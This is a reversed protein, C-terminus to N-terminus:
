VSFISEFKPVSEIQLVYHPDFVRLIIEYILAPSKKSSDILLISASRFDPWKEFNIVRHPKICLFACNKGRHHMLSIYCAHARTLSRARKQQASRRWFQSVPAFFLSLWNWSFVSFLFLDRPFDLKWGFKLVNRINKQM